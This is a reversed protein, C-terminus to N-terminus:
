IHIKKFNILYKCVKIVSIYQTYSVVYFMHVYFRQIFKTCFYKVYIHRLFSKAYKLIIYNDNTLNSRLQFFTSFNERDSLM